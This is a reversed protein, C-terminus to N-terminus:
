LRAVLHGSFYCHSPAGSAGMQFSRVSNAYGWAEVYDGAALPLDASVRTGYQNTGYSGQRALVGNVYLGTTADGSTSTTQQADFHFIGAVPATFRSNPADYAGATDYEEVPVTLKAYGNITSGAATKYGCFAIPTDAPIVMYVTKTGAAWSIKSGTSSSDPTASPTFTKASANWTGRVIEWVSQDASAVRCVITAGDTLAPQADEFALMGNAPPTGALALAGTGTSTTTDGLSNRCELTM